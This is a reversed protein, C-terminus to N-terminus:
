LHKYTVSRSGLHRPSDEDIKAALWQRDRPIAYHGTIHQRNAHIFLDNGELLGWVLLLPVQIRLLPEGSRQWGSVRHGWWHRLFIGQSRLKYSVERFKSYQFTANSYDSGTDGPWPWESKAASYIIKYERQPQPQTKAHIIDVDTNNVDTERWWFSVEQWSRAM